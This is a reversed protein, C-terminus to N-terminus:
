SVNERVFDIVQSFIEKTEINKMDNDFLHGQNKATILKSHVGFDKLKEMMKVSQEYPVDTDKDGHILLTPPFDSDVYYIPCFPKIKDKPIFYSIWKSRKDM